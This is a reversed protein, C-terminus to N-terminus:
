PLERWPRNRPLRHLLFLEEVVQTALLGPQDELVGRLFGGENEAWELLKRKRGEPAALVFAHLVKGDSRSVARVPLLTITSLPADVAFAGVLAVVPPGIEVITDIGDRPGDPELLTVSEDTEDRALSAILAATRRALVSDRVVRELVHTAADVDAASPSAAAGYVVGILAALPLLAGGAALLGAAIFPAVPEVVLLFTVVLTGTVVADVSIGAVAGRAMGSCPGVPHIQLSESSFRDSWTIGIRGFACRTVEDPPEPLAPPKPQACGSYTATLCLVLIVAVIRM